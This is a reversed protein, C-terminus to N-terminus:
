IYMYIYMYTDIYIIIYIYIYIPENAFDLDTELISKNSRCQANIGIAHANAKGGANAAATPQM